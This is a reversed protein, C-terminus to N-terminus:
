PVFDNDLWREFGDGEATWGLIGNKDVRVKWWIWGDACKPDADQITLSDGPDAFGIVEKDRGANKRIRQKASYFTSVYVQSNPQLYSVPYDEGCPRWGALTVDPTYTPMPTQRLPQTEGILRLTALVEFAEKECQASLSEDDYPTRIEFNIEEDSVLYYGFPTVKWNKDGIHIIEPQFRVGAGGFGVAPVIGIKCDSITNHLLFVNGNVSRDVKGTKIKWKEIDVKILYDRNTPYLVPARPDQTPSPSATASPLPAIDTATLTQTVPTSQPLTAEKIGGTIFNCALTASFFIVLPFLLWKKM